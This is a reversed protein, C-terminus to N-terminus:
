ALFQELENKNQYIFYSDVEDEYSQYCDVIAEDDSLNASDIDEFKILYDKINDNNFEVIYNGDEFEFFLGEEVGYYNLAKEKVGKVFENMKLEGQKAYDYLKEATGLTINELKRKGNRIERIVTESVGTDKKVQYPTIESNILKEITKRM